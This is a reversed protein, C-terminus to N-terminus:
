EAEPPAQQLIWRYRDVAAQLQGNKAYLDALLEHAALNDPRSAVITEVDAIADAVIKSKSHTLKGYHQLAQGMQEQDRYARALLLRTEDDKPQQELHRRYRDIDSAAVRANAVSALVDQEHDDSLPGALGAGAISEVSLADTGQPPAMTETAEAPSASGVSEVVTEENQHPNLEIHAEPPKVTSPEQTAEEAHASTTVTALTEAPPEGQEAADTPLEDAPASEDTAPFQGAEEACLVSPAEAPSSEALPAEPPADSQARPEGMSSSATSPREDTAPALESLIAEPSDTVTETPSTSLGGEGISRGEAQGLASTAVPQEPSSPLPECTHGPLETESPAIAPPQESASPLLLEPVPAPRNVLPPQEIRPIQVLQLPLLSQEGFLAHAALNEPDLGRAQDLTSRGEEARGKEMQIAGLVLIAKLCYPCSQLIEQATEAAQEHRGDRWLTEMLSLRLDVRKQHEETGLLTRLEEIAQRHQGGRTYLRALAVKNLKIRSPETGDRKGYLRRLANRVEDQNPALEFAREMNWIAESYHGREEDIVALGAYSVLNEPDAQNLLRRFTDAAEALEGKELCAEGLIQYTKIHKPYRKLIHRCIEIATDYQRQSIAERAEALYQQLSVRAM